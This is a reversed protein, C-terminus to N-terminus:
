QFIKVLAQEAWYLDKIGDLLFEKLHEAADKKPKIKKTETTAM